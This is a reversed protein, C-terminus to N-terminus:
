DDGAARRPDTCLCVGSVGSPAQSASRSLCGLCAHGRYRCIYSKVLESLSNRNCALVVYKAFGHYVIDSRKSDEPRHPPGLLRQRCDEFLARSPYPRHIEILTALLELFRIIATWLCAIGTDFDNLRVRALPLCYNLLVAGCGVMPERYEQGNLNGLRDIIQALAHKPKNACAKGGPYGFPPKVFPM